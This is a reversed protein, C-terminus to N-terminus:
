KSQSRRIKLIGATPLAVLIIVAIAMTARSSQQPLVGGVNPILALFDERSVLPSPPQYEEIVAPLDNYGCQSLDEIDGLGLFPLPVGDPTALQGLEPRYDGRYFGLTAKHVEDTGNSDLFINPNVAHANPPLQINLLIPGAGLNDFYYAGNDDTGWVIEFTIGKAVVGVKAPRGFWETAEINTPDTPEFEYVFGEIRTDTIPVITGEQPHEDCERQLQELYGNFLVADRTDFGFDFVANSTCISERAEPNDELIQDISELPFTEGGKIFIKTLPKRFPDPQILTSGDRSVCKFMTPNMPGIEGTPEGALVTSPILLLTLAVLVLVLIPALYKM